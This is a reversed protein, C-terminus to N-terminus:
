PGEVEPTLIFDSDCFIAERVIDNGTLYTKLMSM